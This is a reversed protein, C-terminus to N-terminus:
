YYFPYLFKENKEQIETQLQKLESSVFAHDQSSQHLQQKLASTDSLKKYESHMLRTKQRLEYISNSIM